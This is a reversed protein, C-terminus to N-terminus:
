QQMRRTEDLVARGAIEWFVGGRVRGGAVREAEFSTSAL